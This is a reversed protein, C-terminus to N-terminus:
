TKTNQFPWFAGFSSEVWWYVIVAYRLRYTSLSHSALLARHLRLFLKMLVAIAIYKFPKDQTTTAGGGQIDSRGVQFEPRLSVLIGKSRKSCKDFEGVAIRELHWGNLESMRATPASLDLIERYNDVNRRQDYLEALETWKGDLSNGTYLECLNCIATAATVSTATNGDKRMGKPLM